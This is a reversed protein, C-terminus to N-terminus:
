KNVYRNKAMAFYYEKVKLSTSVNSADYSELYILKVSSTQFDVKCIMLFLPFDNKHNNKPNCLFFTSRTSPSPLLHLHEFEVKMRKNSKFFFDFLFCFTNGKAEANMWHNKPFRNIQFSWTLCTSHNYYSTIDFTFHFPRSLFWIFATSALFIAESIKLLPSRKKRPVFLSRLIQWLISPIRWADVLKLFDLIIKDVTVVSFDPGGHFRDLTWSSNNQTKLKLFPLCWVTSNWHSTFWPLM